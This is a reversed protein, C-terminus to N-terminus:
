WYIASRKLAVDVQNLVGDLYKTMQPNDKFTMKADKLTKKLAGLQLLDLNETGEKEIKQILNLATNPGAKLKSIEIEIESKREDEILTLQKIILVGNEFLGEQFKGSKFTKKGKGTFQGKIWDGSWIEGDFFYFKGRGNGLGNLFEGEYYGNSTFYSGSGNRKGELYNGIYYRGNNWIQTGFGNYGIKGVYVNGYVYPSINPPNAPNAVFIMGRKELYIKQESYNYLFTKGSDLKPFDGEWKGVFITDRDEDLLVGWKKTGDSNFSGVYKYKVNEVKTNNKIYNEIMNTNEYKKTMYNFYNEDLGTISTILSIKSQEDIPSIDNKIILKILSVRENNDIINCSSWKGNYKIYVCIIGNNKDKICYAVSKDIDGQEMLIKANKLSKLIKKIVSEQSILFMTNESILNYEEVANLKGRANLKISENDYKEIITNYSEIERIAMEIDNSQAKIQNYETQWERSSTNLISTYVLEKKGNTSSKEEILNLGQSKRISNCREVCESYTRFKYVFLSKGKKLLVQKPTPDENTTAWFFYDGNENPLIPEDSDLSYLPYTGDWFVTAEGKNRPDRNTQAVVVYNSLLLILLLITNKM